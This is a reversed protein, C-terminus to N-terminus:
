GLDLTINYNHLGEGLRDELWVLTFIYSQVDTEVRYACTVTTRRPPLLGSNIQINQREWCQM